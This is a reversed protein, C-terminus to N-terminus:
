KMDCAFPQNHTTFNVIHGNLMNGSELYGQAYANKTVMTVQM